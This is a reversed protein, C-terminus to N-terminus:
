DAKLELVIDTRINMRAFLGIWINSSIVLFLVIILLNVISVDTSISLLSPLTSIVAPLFGIAIGAILLILYETFIIRYISKQRYGLALLLGIESKREMISRAILIGLGFTGIILSLVGLMLFISLYTNEVSYFEALRDTTRSMQWGWDRMARSLDEVALSDSIERPEILFVSSGSTSPFSKLFNRESIIVNGQFISPALGGILKLKLTDGSANNYFLTDGIKLGLGWQIVTQDAIAPVLGGGPDGNLSLWPDDKDIDGSFAIFKFRGTLQEPNTGLIIPNTVRNLNLCSADDGESRSFQVFHYDGEIGYQGRVSSNNLDHLVPITSEAFFRFGGTGSSNEGAGATIDKRNAGTAVVIFTGLAFLIIIAYSRKRNRTINRLTLHRVSSFSFIRNEFYKLIRDSLLLLSVLLLSGAIFFMGTDLKHQIIQLIIISISAIGTLLAVLIFVQGTWRNEKTLIEKQIDIIRSNLRRLSIIITIVAIAISILFGMLLSVPNIEMELMSTRVIDSWLGNLLLLIIKNYFVALILGALSGIIAIFVGELLFLNRILRKSFGIASLTGAQTSRKTLNLLFLLGTLLIASLLVFFSLGLFLQSFDVGHRAAYLAEDRVNKINFGLDAPDLNNRFVEEIKEVTVERDPFRISTYDGFRNQWLNQATKLSIFAKPTGKWKNWYDEDKDRIRSLDIPVGAHWDRCSGADSLGPIFPMLSPDEYPESLPVIKKVIFSVSREELQRLPGVVFYKLEVRDGTKLSLDEVLWTNVIIENEGINDGDLTSIFSYPTEKGAKSISNVFYTIILRKDPLNDIFINAISSEIFIRESFIELENTRSINRTKLEADEMDWSKRVSEQIEKERTSGASTFLITNCKGEIKMLRNLIDLDIFVNYPATQSNNLNFHGLEDTGIIRGVKARISVSTEEDSVFPTNLPMLSTKRIRLMFMDNEKLNLGAALNDSIYVEDEGLHDYDVPNDSLQDFRGDVGIIRINNISNGGGETIAVGETLMIPICPINLDQQLKDPLITTFYRDGATLTFITNGLRDLASRELSHKVSDGIILAGTLVATSVAIGAAVTLNYRLYHIFSKIAFGFVTM